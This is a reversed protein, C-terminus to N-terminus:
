LEAKYSCTHTYRDFVFCAWFVRQRVELDYASFLESGLHRFDRHLGLDYALRCADGTYLWGKTDNSQACDLVSLLLLSQVTTIGPRRLEVELLKTVTAAFFPVQDDGDDEGAFILARVEPQDSMRAACAFVCCLLLESFYPSHRSAMGELFAKRHIVHLVPHQYTWYIDLLEKQLTEPIRAQWQSLSRAGDVTGCSLISSSVSESVHLSSTPGFCRLQGAADRNLQWQGGCLRALM